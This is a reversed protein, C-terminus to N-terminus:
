TSLVDGQYATVLVPSQRWPRGGVMGPSGGTVPSSSTLGFWVLPCDAFSGAPMRLPDLDGFSPVDSVGDGGLPAGPSAVDSLSPTDQVSDQFLFLVDLLIKPFRFLAHVKTLSVTDM